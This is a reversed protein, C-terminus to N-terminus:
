ELVADMFRAFGQDELEGRAAFHEYLFAVVQAKKRSTLSLEREALERDVACLVKELLDLNLHATYSAPPEALHQSTAVNAPRGTLIESLDLGRQEAAALLEEYPFSGTKKRNVFATRSMGLAEAVATDTHVRLALKLRDLVAEFRSGRNM